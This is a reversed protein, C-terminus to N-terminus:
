FPIGDADAGAADGTTQHAVAAEGGEGGGSGGFVQVETVAIKHKSRKGGGNKDEWEDQQLRGEVLVESGKAVRNLVLDCLNFKAGPSTFVDCDIYLQDPGREWQGTQPNKKGRGCALRFKVLTTGSAGLVKPGEPDGVVRGVLVVKNFHAM